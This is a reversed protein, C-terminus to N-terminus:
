CDWSGGSSEEGEKGKEPPFYQMHYSDIRINELHTLLLSQVFTKLRDTGFIPLFAGKRKYTQAYM